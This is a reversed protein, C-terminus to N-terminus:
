KIAPLRYALKFKLLELIDERMSKTLYDEARWIPIQADTILEDILTALICHLDFESLKDWYKYSTGSAVKLCEWDEKPVNYRIPTRSGLSTKRIASHYNLFTDIIFKMTPERM